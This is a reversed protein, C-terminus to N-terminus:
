VIEELHVAPRYQKGNRVNIVLYSNAPVEFESCVCSESDGEAGDYFCFYDQLFVTEMFPLAYIYSGFSNSQKLIPLVNKIFLVQDEHNILHFRVFEQLRRSLSRVRGLEGKEAYLDIARHQLKNYDSVLMSDDKLKNQIDSIERAIAEEKAKIEKETIKLYDIQEM